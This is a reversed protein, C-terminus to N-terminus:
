FSQNFTWIQPGKWTNKGRQLLNPLRQTYSAVKSNTVGPRFGLPNMKKQTGHM